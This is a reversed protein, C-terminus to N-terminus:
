RDLAWGRSAWEGTGGDVNVADVGRARLFETVQRSRGGSQCIVHVVRDRPQEVIREPVDNMPIPVAGPVHGADYEEPERVDIVYGGEAHRAAFTVLDIEALDPQQEAEVQRRVDDMDLGRVGEILQELAAPPLAGAESFVCVGERFAMLTPISSIQAQGALEREAETDVKGFVIDQHREAAAAYIPAFARCPGCWDAWFDILVIDNATITQEFAATTVDQTPM